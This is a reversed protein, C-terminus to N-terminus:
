IRMGTFINVGMIIEIVGAILVFVGVSVTYLVFIFMKESKLLWRFLKLAFFGVVASFIVGTFLSAMEVEYIVGLEIAEKIEFIAAAIIAPIGLIFSFDFAKQRNIGRILGTSLTSGSRSLGPFVAALFQMFGIWLADYVTLIGKKNKNIMEISEEYPMRKTHREEFKIGLYLLIGTLILCIGPIIIYRGDSLNEALDMIGLSGPAVPLFVLLLPILGVVIMVVFNKDGSQKRLKFRGKAVDEIIKFFAFILDLIKKNYFTIVALLTGVHLMVDFFLNNEEIGLIHQLIVLHGSSSVPLFETLGQVIGQLAANFISM